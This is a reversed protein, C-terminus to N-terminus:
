KIKEKLKKLDNKNFTHFGLPTISIYNHNVAYVDSGRTPNDFLSYRSHTVNEEDIFEYHYKLTGTHLSTLRIGKCKDGKNFNVNLVYDKSYLKNDFIYRLVLEINKKVNTFDHRVSTSLAIAPIEHFMAEFCAGLTGSYMTDYSLNPGDNCGSIVLDFDIGLANLGFSTCGTPVSDVAYHHDDYKKVKEPHGFSISCSKGSQVLMPAAVYVEGFKKLIEEILVIGEAGFGDDNVLLFKM